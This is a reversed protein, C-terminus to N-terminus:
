VVCNRAINKHPKRRGRSNRHNLVLYLVAMLLFGISLETLRFLTQFTFWPWPEPQYNRNLVGYVGFVTYLQLLIAFLFMFTSCYTLQIARQIMYGQRIRYLSISSPQSKLNDGLISNINDHDLSVDDGEQSIQFNTQISLKPSNMVIETDALYGNEVPYLESSAAPCEGDSGEQLCTEAASQESILQRSIEDSDEMQKFDIYLKNVSTPSQFDLGGSTDSIGAMGSEDSMLGTSDFLDSRTGSPSTPLKRVNSSRKHRRKRIRVYSNSTTDGDTSSTDADTAITITMRDEDTIKLRPRALRLSTSSRSLSIKPHTKKNVCFQDLQKRVRRTETAYQSLRFGNCIFSICLYLAMAIFLGNDIILLIKAKNEYFVIVEILVISFLYTLTSAFLHTSNRLKSNGVDLRTIRLLMIQILAYSACLLPYILQSLVGVLVPSLVKSYGYPDVSLYFVRLMGAVFLLITINLVAKLRGIRQRFRVCVFACFLSLLFFLISFGYIHIQWGGKWLLRATQWNPLPLLNDIPASTNSHDDHKYSNQVAHPSRFGVPENRLGFM